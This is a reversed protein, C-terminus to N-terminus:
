LPYTCKYVYVYMYPRRIFNIDQLMKEVHNQLKGKYLLILFISSIYPWPYLINAINICM